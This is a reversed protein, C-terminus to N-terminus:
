WVPELQGSRVNPVHVEFVTVDIRDGALAGPNHVADDVPRARDSRELLVAEVTVDRHLRVDTGLQLRRQAGELAQSAEDMADFRIGCRSIRELRHTHGDWGSIDSSASDGALIM